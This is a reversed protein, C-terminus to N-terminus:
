SKKFTFGDRIGKYINVLYQVRPFIFLPLYLLKIFYLCGNRIKWVAPVYNRGCLIIYNRFQYYIRIPSSIAIKFGIISRDGEGLKHEICANELVFSDLNCNAKARWCWENDVGDIFLEADMLGANKFNELSILSASSGCSNVKIFNYEIGNSTLTFKDLVPYKEKYLKGNERNISNPCVVGVKYKNEILLASANTMREVLHDPIVSDQDLFIISDYNLNEFYKIGINQAAALGINKNLSILNITSYRQFFTNDLPIDTNDIICMKDVQKEISGIVNRLIVEVPNYLVLICGIKM